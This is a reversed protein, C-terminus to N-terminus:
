YNNDIYVASFPRSQCPSQLIHTNINTCHLILSMSVLAQSGRRSMENHTLAEFAAIFFSFAASLEALNANVTEEREMNKACSAWHCLKRIWNYRYPSM